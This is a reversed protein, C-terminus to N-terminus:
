RRRRASAPSPAAEIMALKWWRRTMGRMSLSSQMKLILLAALGTDSARERNSYSRKGLSYAAVLALRATLRL